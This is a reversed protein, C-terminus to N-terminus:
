MTKLGHYVMGLGHKQGLRRCRGLATIFWELVMRRDWDVVGDKPQAVGNWSWAETGTERCRGYATISGDLDMSKDTDRVGDMPESLAKWPWTGTGTERFLGLGHKQGLREVGDRPRSVPRPLKILLTNAQCALPGSNSGWTRCM